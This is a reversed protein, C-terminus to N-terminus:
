DGRVARWVESPRGGGQSKPQLESAVKGQTLLLSLAANLKNVSQNRGFLDSIQSRTMGNPNQRLAALITDAIPDGLSDGFIYRASDAYYQWMTLAAKLHPLKIVGDSGDLVAYILALRLTQAEARACIAGLLGPIEENLEAYVNPWLKRVDDDMVFQKDVKYAKDFAVMVKAGLADLDAQQLDGGFPLLKSRRACAFLFRNAYGSAMHVHDLGSRLEDITTHGSISFHPEVCRSPTKSRGTTLSELPHGDWAKRVIVSVTSGDRRMVALCQFFEREDLMLRKDDVGHDEVIEEGENNTGYVKDRIHWIVGEGSSLGGKICNTVWEGPEDNFPRHLQAMASTMLQRIRDASTGKRSKASQGVLVGYLNTYHKTGEVQYYAGRGIANGFAIHFQM